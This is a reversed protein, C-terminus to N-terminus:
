PEIINFNGNFKDMCGILEKFKDTNGEIKIMGKDLAEKLPMAQMAILTFNFKDGTIVADPHDVPKGERYM